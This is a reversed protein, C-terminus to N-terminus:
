CRYWLLIPTNPQLFFPSHASRCWTRVGCFTAETELDEPDLDEYDGPFGWWGEKASAGRGFSSPHKARLSAAFTKAKLIHEELDSKRMENSKHHYTLGSNRALDILSQATM